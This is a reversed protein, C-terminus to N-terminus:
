HPIITKGREWKCVQINNKWRQLIKNRELTEWGEM